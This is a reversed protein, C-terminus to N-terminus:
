LARVAPQKNPETKSGSFLTLAHYHVNVLSCPSLDWITSGKTNVVTLESEDSYTKWKHQLSAEREKRIAVLAVCRQTIKGGERVM